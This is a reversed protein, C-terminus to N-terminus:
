RSILGEAYHRGLGDGLRRRPRCASWGGEVKSVAAVEMQLLHLSPTRVALVDSSSTEDVIAPLDVLTAIGINKFLIAVPDISQYILDVRDVFGLQVDVFAYRLVGVHLTAELNVQMASWARQVATRNGPDYILTTGGLDSSLGFRIAVLIGLVLLVPYLINEYVDAEVIDLVARGLLFIHVADIKAQSICLGETHILVVDAVADARGDWRWLAFSGLLPIYQVWCCRSTLFACRGRPNRRRSTPTM